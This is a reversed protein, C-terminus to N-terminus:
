AKPWDRKTFDIRELPTEYVGDLSLDPHNLRIDWAGGKGENAEDDEMSCHLHIGEGFEALTEFLRFLRKRLKGNRDHNWSIYFAIASSYQGPLIAIQVANQEFADRVMGEIQDFTFDRGIEGWESEHTTEGNLVQIIGSYSYM